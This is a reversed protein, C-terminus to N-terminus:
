AVDPAEDASLPRRYRFAAIAAARGTPRRADGSCGVEIDSNRDAEGRATSGGLLV